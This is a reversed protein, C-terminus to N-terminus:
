IGLFNARLKTYEHEQAWLNLPISALEDVIPVAHGNKTLDVTKIYYRCTDCAEVRVHKFQEATYVPLKEVSEEGCAACVLRRFPWETLCVSCVLSRKAGDGEPRLVGVLPKASCVPCVALGRHDGRPAAREGLHEAYPQLFMWIVLAEADDHKPEFHPAQQWNGALLGRWRDEGEMRLTRAAAAVVPPAFTEIKSLFGPFKSSPFQPSLRGSSLSRADEEVTEFQLYLEKQLTAVRAYFGLIEAAFSHDRALTKARAIRQDWKSPIM